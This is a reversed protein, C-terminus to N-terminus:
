GSSPLRRARLGPPFVDVEPNELLARELPRLCARDLRAPLPPAGTSHAHIMLDPTDPCAALEQALALQEPALPTGMVVLRANAAAMLLAHLAALSGGGSIVPAVLSFQELHLHEGPAHTGLLLDDSLALLPAVQNDDLQLPEPDLHIIAISLQM